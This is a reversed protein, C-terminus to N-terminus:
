DGTGSLTPTQPSGGGDDEIQVFASRKGIKRPSFTVRIACSAGPGVQSGCNDRESFDDFNRGDIFIFHTINLVDSGTNTLRITQPASTTGVDQPPFKLRPPSLEVVTGTGVLEVVQPKSSASDKFTVTGSVSGAVQATFNATITCHAGPALSGKCTTKTMKFPQGSCTVSAVTLATTGSNTLTATRPASTTGILQTPFTVPSTPSFVATGTNLLTVLYGDFYDVAIADLKHDGNFDGVAVFTSLSGAPFVMQPQFTGDGHGLLISVSGSSFVNGDINSVIIDPKGDGNFDGTTAWTSSYSTYTVAEGFTGDGNGLLVSVGPAGIFDAIALDLRGDGRFDAVAVSQSHTPIPYSTGETFTGDGNGLLITAWARTDTSRTVALDLTGNRDFDGVGLAIAGPTTKIPRRFTGDGRNLFVSISDGDLVVLDPKRDGNFDGAAVFFPGFGTCLTIPPQFTGDGNGFLVSVSSSLYNAVALDLKGDSNFDAVAVSYPNEGVGYNIPPQFTGDGNGLFIQLEAAIAAVDLKGDHNFDGVAVTANGPASLLYTTARTELQAAAPACFSAACALTLLASCFTRFIRSLFVGRWM